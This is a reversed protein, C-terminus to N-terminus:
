LRNVTPLCESILILSFQVSYYDDGSGGIMTVMMPLLLVPLSLLSSMLLLLPLLPLLSLSLLLTINKYFLKTITMSHAPQKDYSLKGPKHLPKNSCAM